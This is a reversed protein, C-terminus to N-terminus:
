AGRNGHVPCYSEYGTGFCTCGEDMVVHDSEFGKRQVPKEWTWKGDSQVYVMGPLPMVVRDGESQLPPSAVFRTVVPNTLIARLTTAQWPQLPYDLVDEIFSIAKDAVDAPTDTM